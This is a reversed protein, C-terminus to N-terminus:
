FLRKLKNTDKNQEMGFLPQGWKQCHYCKKYTRFIIRDAHEFDSSSFLWHHFGLFCLIKRM